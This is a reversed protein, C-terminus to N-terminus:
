SAKSQPLPLWHTPHSQWDQRYGYPYYRGSFYNGIRLAGTEFLLLVPYLENPTQETISIWETWSVLAEVPRQEDENFDPGHKNCDEHIDMTRDDRRNPLDKHKALM